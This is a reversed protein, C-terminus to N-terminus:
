IAKRLLFWIQTFPDFYDLRYSSFYPIFFDQYGSNGPTKTKIQYISLKRKEDVTKYKLFNYKKFIRELEPRGKPNLSLPALFPGTYLGYPDSLASTTIFVPRNQLLANNIIKELKEGPWYPENIILKEGSYITYPRAFHSELLLGNEPLNATLRSQILYPIPQRLYTITASSFLVILITLVSFIKNFKNLFLSALLSIPFIVMQGHRGFLVADWLQNCFLSPALWLLGGWFIYKQKKCYFYILSSFSLLALLTTSDRLMLIFWSRIARALFILSFSFGFHGSLTGFSAFISSAATVPKTLYYLWLIFLYGALFSLIFYILSIKIQSYKIKKNVLFYIGFYAPIWAMIITHTIYAGFFSICSYVLFKRKDKKLFLAFYFLSLTFFFIYLSENMVSVNSIWFVPTLGALITALIAAKKTFIITVLKYFVYLSGFGALVTLFQVSSVPNIKLFIGLRYFIWSFFVYGAHFPTHGSLLSTLLNSMAIRNLYEQSDFFMPLGTIFPLRSIFYLIIIILHIM